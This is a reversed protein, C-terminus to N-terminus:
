LPHRGGNGFRHTPSISEAPQQVFIILRCGSPVTNTCGEPKFAIANRQASSDHREGIDKVGEGVGTRILLGPRNVICDYLYAALSSFLEVRGYYSSELPEVWIFENEREPRTRVKLLLRDGRRRTPSGRTQSELTPTQHDGNGWKPCHDDFLQLKEALNVKDM